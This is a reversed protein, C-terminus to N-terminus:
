PRQLINFLTEELLNLDVPKNLYADFGAAEAQSRDTDRTMGSVAILALHRTADHTRLQQALWHGDHEPMALDSIVADFKG